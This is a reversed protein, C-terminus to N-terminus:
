FNSGVKPLLGKVLEQWGMGWLMESLSAEPYRSRAGGPWSLAYHCDWLQCPKSSSGLASLCIWLTTGQGWTDISWYMRTELGSLAGVKLSPETM